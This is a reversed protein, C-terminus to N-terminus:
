LASTFWFSMFDFHDALYDKQYSATGKGVCTSMAGIIVTTALRVTRSIGPVKLRGTRMIVSCNLKQVIRITDPKTRLHGIRHTRSFTRIIHRYTEM